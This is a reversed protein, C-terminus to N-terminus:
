VPMRGQQQEEEDEEDEAVSLGLLRRYCRNQTRLEAREREYPELEASRGKLAERNYELVKILAEQWKTHAIRIAFNADREKQLLSLYHHHWSFMADQCSSTYDRLKTNIHSQISEYHTAIQEWSTASALAREHSTTLTSVQSELDAIRALLDSHTQSQLQQPQQQSSSPASDTTSDGNTAPSDDQISSTLVPDHRDHMQRVGAVIHETQERNQRVQESLQNLLNMVYNLDQQHGAHPLGGPISLPPLGGTGAM